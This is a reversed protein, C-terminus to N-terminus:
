KAKASLVTLEVVNKAKGKKLTFLKRREKFCNCRKTRREQCIQEM